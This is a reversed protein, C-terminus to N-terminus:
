NVVGAGGGWEFRLNNGEILYDQGRQRGDEGM